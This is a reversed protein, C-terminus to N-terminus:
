IIVGPEGDPTKVMFPRGDDDVIWETNSEIVRVENHALMLIRRPGDPPDVLPLAMVGKPGPTLLEYEAESWEGDQLIVARDGRHLPTGEADRYIKIVPIRRRQKAPEDNVSQDHGPPTVGQPDTSTGQGPRASAEGSRESDDVFGLGRLLQEVQSWAPSSRVEADAGDVVSQLLASLRREGSTLLGDFTPDLLHSTAATSADALRDLFIELMRAAEARGTGDGVVITDLDDRWLEAVLPHDELQLTSGFRQDRGTRRLAKRVDHAVRHFNDDTLSFGVFLMHKTILMAQVIGALAANREAYGLYDDRTLVIDDPHDVSGHLKLVWRGHEGPSEYPLTAAPRGADASAQEFLVDYNTTVVEQVPLSALLAHSLSHQTRQLLRAVARGLSYENAALRERLLRAQDLPSPLEALAAQEVNSLGATQALTQLLEKWTPLGAGVGIGAGLFLVLGGRLAHYALEDVESTLHSPLADWAHAVKRRAQIAAAHRADDFCVYAVDVDLERVLETLRGVQVEILSGKAGTGGGAGTGLTPLALLPRSRLRHHDTTGRREELARAAAARVFREAGDAYWEAAAGPGSGTNVLWPRPHPADVLEAVRDSALLSRHADTIRAPVEWHAEVFGSADTPLAWHDCALHQIDGRVIFLHGTM